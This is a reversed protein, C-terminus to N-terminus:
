EAASSRIYVQLMYRVCVNRHTYYINRYPINHNTFTRLADNSNAPRRTAHPVSCYGDIRSVPRYRANNMVHIYNLSRFFFRTCFTNLLRFRNMLTVLTYFLSTLENFKFYIYINDYEGVVRIYRFRFEVSQRCARGVSRRAPSLDDYFTYTLYIQENSWIYRRHGYV